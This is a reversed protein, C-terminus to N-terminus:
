LFSRVSHVMSVLAWPSGNMKPKPTSTSTALLAGMFAVHRLRIM